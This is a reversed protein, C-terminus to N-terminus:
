CIHMASCAMLMTVAAAVALAGARRLGRSGSTKGNM